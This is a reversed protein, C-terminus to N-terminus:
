IMIHQSHTFHTGPGYFRGLLEPAEVFPYIQM